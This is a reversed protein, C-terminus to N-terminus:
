RRVTVVAGPSLRGYVWRADASRLGISGRTADRTGPAGEAYTMAVLFNARGDPGRLEVVWPLRVDYEDGLGVSESTLRKVRHKAVVTMRGTATPHSANGSSVPVRRGDLTLTRAGLDVTAAPAASRTSPAAPPAPRADSGGGLAGTLGFALAAVAVAAGGALATHRRRRRAVARRRVQAGAVPAPAAGSAALSRLSASLGPAALEPASPEPVSLEPVAPEPASPERSLDDSM